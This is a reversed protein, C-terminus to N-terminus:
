KLPALATNYSAFIKIYRALDKRRMVTSNGAWSIKYNLNTAVKVMLSCVEKSTVRRESRRIDNITVPVKGPYLNDLVTILEARTLVKDPKLKGKKAIGRWGGHQKVYVIASFSQKDVKKGTVDKYPNKVRGALVSVSLLMCFVFALMFVRGVKKM